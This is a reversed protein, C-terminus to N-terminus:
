GFGLKEVDDEDLGMHHAVEHVVTRMVERALSDDDDAAALHPERFIWITNVVPVGEDDGGETLPRGEYFGFLEDSETLGAHEIIDESPRDRVVIEVTDLGARLHAPLSALAQRVLLDFRRRSKLVLVGIRVM